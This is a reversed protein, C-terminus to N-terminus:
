PDVVEEWSSNLLWLYSNCDLRLSCGNNLQLYGNEEPKSSEMHSDPWSGLCVARIFVVIPSNEPHDSTSRKSSPSVGRTPEKLTPRKSQSGSFPPFLYYFHSLQLTLLQLTSQSWKKTMTKMEMPVYERRWENRVWSKSRLRIYWTRAWFM